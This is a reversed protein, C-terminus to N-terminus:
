HLLGNDEDISLQPHISITLVLVCTARQPIVSSLTVDVGPYCQSWPLVSKSTTNVQVLWSRLQRIHSVIVIHNSCLVYNTSLHSCTLLAHSNPQAPSFLNFAIAPPATCGTQLAATLEATTNVSARRIDGNQQTTPECQIM